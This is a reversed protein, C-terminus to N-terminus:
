NRDFEFGQDILRDQLKSSHLKQSIYGSGVGTVTGVAFGTGMASKLGMKGMSSLKGVGKATGATIATTGVNIGWQAWEEGHDFEM